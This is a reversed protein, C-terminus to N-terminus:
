YNTKSFLLATKIVKVKVQLYSVVLQVVSPIFSYNVEHQTTVCASTKMM